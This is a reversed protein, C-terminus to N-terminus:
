RPRSPTTPSPWTARRWRPGAGASQRCRPASPCSRRTRRRRAGPTGWSSAPTAGGAALQATIPAFAELQRDNWLGLDNPSIRGEPNVATSEVIVAGAGGVSRSHLHTAHWSTAAGADPGTAAASYQCMPAMWVRNRVTVDRFTIPEFLISVGLVLPAAGPANRRPGPTVCAVEPPREGTGRHAM